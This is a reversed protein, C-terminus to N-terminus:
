NVSLATFYIHIPNKGEGFSLFYLPFFNGYEDRGSNAITYANYGVAAEDWNLSPPVLDLKYLRLVAGLLIIVLLLIKIKM